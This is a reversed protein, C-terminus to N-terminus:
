TTALRTNDEWINYCAAATGTYRKVQVPKYKSHIGVCSLPSRLEMYKVIKLIITRQVFNCWHLFIICQWMAM